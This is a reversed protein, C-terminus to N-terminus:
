EYRLAVIPDVRMARRAPVYCALCATLGLLAVVGLLIVPDVAKVGFLLKQMLRSLGLSGIIGLALGILVLRGGQRMIMRLVDASQAGLAVRIGIERTLQSVVNSLVGYIGAAALVLAVAAFLGLLLLNLARPAISTSILENMTVLTGLPQDKDLAHVEAALTAAMDAPERNTRVVINVWNAPDQTLPLYMEPNVRQDLGWDKVDGVVGVIERWKEERGLHFRKGVASQGPWYRQAAAQNIVAVFLSASTDSTQITRGALLPIRMTEFYGPTVMRHHARTPEDPNPPRNEITIGTRSDQGSLPLINIAGSSEVGPIATVKAALQEFFSIKSQAEKYRAGNLALPLAMVRSPSFGPEVTRLQLFTRLMLGAGVLLFASLAVETVLLTSRLKRNGGLFNAFSGEGKLASILSARASNLAPALGALFCSALSVAALFGLVAYNMKIPPIPIGLGSHELLPGLGWTGWSALLIGVAGALCSLLLSEAMLQRVLRWRTAGIAQRVAIERQRRVTNALLLNSVNACAILLVFGVAISLVKLAPRVDSVLQERLPLVNAGHGRNVDPNDTELRAAIGDMETQAAQMNVGPKLRAFVFLFHSGRNHHFGESIQLPTWLEVKQYPFEFNEPLVGAVIWSEGNVNIAKGVVSPAGGFRRQWLGYTLVALHPHGALEDDSIFFRGLAPKVGLVDFFEAGVNGSLLRLPEDGGLLDEVGYSMEAMKEFARNQSKWDLYDAPSVNNTLMNERIRKEWVMVIKEPQSYSLNRLLVAHVLSFITGNAAIGLALTLVAVFTFGPNKRLMRAGFRLDQLLTEVWSLGRRERYIEKTQEVGGLKLLANRRAEEPSMGARLNDEIHMQLHSEMEATLEQERREKGFMGGLRLFWARLQRM